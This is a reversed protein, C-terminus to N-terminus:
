IEKSRVTSVQFKQFIEQECRQHVLSRTIGVSDYLLSDKSLDSGVDFARTVFRMCVTSASYSSSINFLM